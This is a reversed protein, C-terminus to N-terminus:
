YWLSSPPVLFPGQIRSWLSSQFNLLTKEAINHISGEVKVLRLKLLKVWEVVPSWTIEARQWQCYRRTCGYGSGSCSEWKIEKERELIAHIALVLWLYQQNFCSEIVSLVKGVQLHIFCCVLQISLYLVSFLDKMIPNWLWSPEQCNESWFALKILSFM